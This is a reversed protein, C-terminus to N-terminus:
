IKYLDLAKLLSLLYTFELKIIKTLSVSSCLTIDLIFYKGYDLNIVRKHLLVDTM